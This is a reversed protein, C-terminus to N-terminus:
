RISCLLSPSESASCSHRGGHRLAATASVTPVVSAVQGLAALYAVFAVDIQEPATKKLYETLAGSSALM